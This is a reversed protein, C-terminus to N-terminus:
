SNVYFQVHAMSVQRDQSGIPVETYQVTKPTKQPVRVFQIHYRTSM